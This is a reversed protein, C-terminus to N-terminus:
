IESTSQFQSTIQKRVTVQITAPLRDITSNVGKVVGESLEKLGNSYIGIDAQLHQIENICLVIFAWVSIFAVAIVIVVSVIRAISALIPHTDLFREEWQDQSLRNEKAKKLRRKICMCPFCLFLGQIQKVAPEM